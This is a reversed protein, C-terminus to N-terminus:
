PNPAVYSASFSLTGTHVGSMAQDWEDQTIDVTLSITDNVNTLDGGTFQSGGSNVSYDIESSNATNVLKYTNAAPLTVRVKAGSTLNAKSLKIGTLSTSSARYPIDLSDPISIEFAEGVTTTLTTNGTQIPPAAAGVPACAALMLTLTLLASLLKKM